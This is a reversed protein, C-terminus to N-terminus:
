LPGSLYGDLDCNIFRAIDIATNVSWLGTNKKGLLAYNQLYQASIKFKIGVKLNEFSHSSFYFNAKNFRIVNM